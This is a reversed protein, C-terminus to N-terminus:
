VEVWRKIDNKWIVQVNNLEDDEDEEPEDLAVTVQWCDDEIFEPDDGGVTGTTGNKMDVADGEDPVKTDHAM